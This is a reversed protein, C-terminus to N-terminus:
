PSPYKMQGDASSAGVDIANVKKLSKLIKFHPTNFYRLFQSRREDLTFVNKILVIGNKRFSNIVAKM